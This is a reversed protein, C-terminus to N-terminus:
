TPPTSEQEQEQEKAAKKKKGTALNRNAVKQLGLPSDSEPQYRSQEILRAIREARTLVNRHENLAGPKTKLSRHLSM